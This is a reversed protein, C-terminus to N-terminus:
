VGKNERTYGLATLIKEAAANMKEADAEEIHDFGRLHLYGHCVLFALEREQSHGYEAAQEKVKDLSILIDGLFVTGREPDLDLPDIKGVGDKHDLMPFSLVDTARDIDRQELNVQRIEENNTFCVFVTQEPSELLPLASEAGKLVRAAIEQCAAKTLRVPLNNQTFEFEATVASM